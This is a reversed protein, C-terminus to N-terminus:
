YSLGPLQIPRTVRLPGIFLNLFSLTSCTCYFHRGKLHLAGLNYLLFIIFM